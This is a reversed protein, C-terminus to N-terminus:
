VLRQFTARPSTPLGSKRSQQQIEDVVAARMSSLERSKRSAQLVVNNHREASYLELQHAARRAGERFTCADRFANSTHRNFDRTRAALDEEFAVSRLMCRRDRASLAREHRLGEQMMLHSGNATEKNQNNRRATGDRVRQHYRKLNEDHTVELAAL